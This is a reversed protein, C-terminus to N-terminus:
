ALLQLTFSNAQERRSRAAYLVESKIAMINMQSTWKGGVLM